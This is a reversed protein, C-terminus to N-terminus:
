WRGAPAAIHANPAPKAEPPKNTQVSSAATARSPSPLSDRLKFAWLCTLALAARGMALVLLFGKMDRAARDLPAVLSSPRPNKEPLRNQMPVDMPRGYRVAAPRM